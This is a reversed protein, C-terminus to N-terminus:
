NGTSRRRRRSHVAVADRLEQLVEAPGCGGPEGLILKAAGHAANICMMQERSTNMSQLVELDAVLQRLEAESMM